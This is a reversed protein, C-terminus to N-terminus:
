SKGENSKILEDLDIYVRGSNIGENLLLKRAYHASVAGGMLVASATQPWTTITKGMQLISERARQSLKQFDLISNMIEKGQEPLKDLIIAEDGFKELYGHFIPRSPELDFREVDIMGRDSTDMLVPIGLSKAKLRSSLKIPLSDCEEILLDLHGGTSFFEDMNALTIGEEYVSVKLYPDIEAIERAVMWAKKIGLHYLGTRIRNMNSLELTDFDAIRLEGFSREMALSLAVSQGVSLGIVGIKKTQLLDQEEQTIKFRNRSTRLRIFEAEPLIRVLTNRWPYFVWIGFTERATERFFFDVQDQLDKPSFVQSPNNIKVLEAVQGEITDTIIMFSRAKLESIIQADSSSQPSLLIPRYHMSNGTVGTFTM